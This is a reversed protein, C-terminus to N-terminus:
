RGIPALPLGKGWQELKSSRRSSQLYAGLGETFEKAVYRLMAAGGGLRKSM